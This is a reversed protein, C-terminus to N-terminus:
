ATVEVTAPFTFETIYQSGYDCTECGPHSEQRQGWGMGPAAENLLQIFAATQEPHDYMSTLRLTNGEGEIKLNHMGSNYFHPRDEPGTNLAEIIDAESFKITIPSM